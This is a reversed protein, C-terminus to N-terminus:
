RLYEVRSLESSVEWLRKRVEQDRARKSVKALAPYGRMEMFGNPGYYTGGEAKASTAAYLTPLAGQNARMAVKDTAWDFFRNHRQLDTKTGGPHAALSSVNIGRARLRQDLELAFMLCALKSQEYSKWARYRTGGRFSDFNVSGTRHAISSLTVVRAQESKQLLPLLHGTLAFHGLYNVGFQLEFGDETKSEPPIMVGANNVLLDLSSLKSEMRKAFKEVSTLSSLDLIELEVSLGPTKTLIREVAGEGRAQNRCALIVHGEKEALIRATEFGIGANAGTVIATRNEQSPIESETWKVIM